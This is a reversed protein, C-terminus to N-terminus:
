AGDRDRSRIVSLSIVVVSAVFGAVLFVAAWQWVPMGTLIGLSSVLTGIGAFTLMAAAIGIVRKM